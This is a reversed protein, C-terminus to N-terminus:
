IRVGLMWKWAPIVEISHDGELITEESDLTILLLKDTKLLDAAKILAKIERERTEVSSIDACVQILTLADKDDKTVFDIEMGSDKYYFIERGRRKLELFISTELLRGYDDSFSHSVSRALGTDIAYIKPLSKQASKLSPSYRRVDFILIAERFYGIYKAIITESISYLRHLSAASITKASNTMLYIGLNKLVDKRRIQYRGVIDREVIDGYYQQLLEMDGTLVIRPFGGHILFEGFEKQILSSNLILDRGDKVSINKFALFEEFSLPLLTYSLHRGSLVSGIESSLLKSSSGTIFIKFKESDRLKRVTKEWGRINQIEDFFLYKLDKNFYIQYVNILEEIILPSSNDFFYPDEFNMYLWSDEPLKKMILKLVSSKGSRRSGIIDVVELGNIDISHALDREFLVSNQSEKNWFDIIKVLQEHNNM